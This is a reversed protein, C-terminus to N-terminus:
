SQAERQADRAVIWRRELTRMIAIEILLASMAFSGVLVSSM